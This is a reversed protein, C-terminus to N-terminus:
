DSLVKYTDNYPCYGSRSVAVNLCQSNNKNNIQQCWKQGYTNAVAETCKQQVVLCSKEALSSLNASVNCAPQIASICMLRRLASLCENQAVAESIVKQTKNIQQFTDNQGFLTTNTTVNMPIDCSQPVIVCESSRTIKTSCLIIFGFIVLVILNTTRMVM